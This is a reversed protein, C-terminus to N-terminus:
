ALKVKMKKARSPEMMACASSSPRCMGSGTPYTTQESTMRGSTIWPMVASDFICTHVCGTQSTSITAGNTDMAIWSGPFNESNVWKAPSEGVPEFRPASPTPAPAPTASDSM